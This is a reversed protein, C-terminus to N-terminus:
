GGAGGEVIFCPWVKGEQTKRRTLLSKLWELGNRDLCIPDHGPTNPDDPLCAFAGQGPRLTRLKGDDSRVVVTADKAVAAPAASTASAILDADTKAKPADQALASIGGQGAALGAVMLAIAALRM